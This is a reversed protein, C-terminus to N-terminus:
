ERPNKRPRVAPGGPVKTGIGRQGDIVAQLVLIADDLHGEALWRSNRAKRIQALVAIIQTAKAGYGVASLAAALEDALAANRALDAELEDARRKSANLRSLLEGISTM